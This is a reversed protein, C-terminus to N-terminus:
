TARYIVKFNFNNEINYLIDGIAKGDKIRNWSTDIGAFINVNDVLPEGKLFEIYENQSGRQALRGFGQCLHQSSALAAVENNSLGKLPYYVGIDLSLMNSKDAKEFNEQSGYFWWGTNFFLRKPQWTSTQRLTEPYASPDNSLDFAEMSLM